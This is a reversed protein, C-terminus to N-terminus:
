PSEGPDPPEEQLFLWLLAAFVVGLWLVVWAFALPLGLIQPSAASFLPYVPWTLAVAAAILVAVFTWRRRRVAPKEGRPFFVLGRPPSPTPAMKHPM